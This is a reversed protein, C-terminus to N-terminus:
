GDWESERPRQIRVRTKVRPALRYSDMETDALQQVRDRELPVGPGPTVTVDVTRHAVGVTINERAIGTEESLHQALAAAIVGNDVVVARNPHTMEHKPLRGPALALVILVLGIVALVIGGAIVLWTPQATPLGVLWAFGDLPGMLLAPQAAMYLVIEVGLYILVILLVVVAIIMAITRPSHTERRVVRRFAPSSM